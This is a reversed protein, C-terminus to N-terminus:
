SCLTEEIQDMVISCAMWGFPHQEQNITPPASVVSPVDVSASVSNQIFTAEKMKNIAVREQRLGKRSMKPKSAGEKQLMLM